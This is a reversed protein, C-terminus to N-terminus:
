SKVVASASNKHPVIFSILVCVKITVPHSVGSEVDENTIDYDPLIIASPKVSIPGASHDERQLATLFDIPNFRFSSQYRAVKGM